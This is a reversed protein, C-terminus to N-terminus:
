QINGNDMLESVLELGGMYANSLPHPHSIENITPSWTPPFRQDPGTRGQAILSTHCNRSGTAKRHTLGRISPSFPFPPRTISASGTHRFWRRGRPVAIWVINGGMKPVRETGRHKYGTCPCPSRGCSGSYTAPLHICVEMM